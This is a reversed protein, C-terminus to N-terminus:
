RINVPFEYFDANEPLGSPNAKEFRIYGRTVETSYTLTASFGVMRDSTWSGPTTEKVEARAIENKDKDLLKVLATGEFLWTGKISGMITMPSKITSNPALTDVRVSNDEKTVNGVSTTHKDPVTINNSRKDYLYLGGLTSALVILIVIFTTKLSM